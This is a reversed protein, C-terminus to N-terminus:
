WTAWAVLLAVVTAGAAMGLGYGQLVGQQSRGFSMGLARPAAGVLTVLGDIVMRDIIFFVSGLMRLPRVIVADNFEDIYYKNALTRVLGPFSRAVRDAAPRNFWHFYAALGIGALSIAGSLIMMFTHLALGAVMPHADHAEVLPTATSTEVMHEIFHPGYHEWVGLLIAGLALIVLPANMLFSMEHPEHHHEVTIAHPTGAEAPPSESPPEPQSHALTHTVTHQHHTPPTNLPTHPPTPGTTHVTTQSPPTVPPHADDQGHHEDGMEYALPGMFVRFWLRFTYFATLFATILGLVALAFYLWSGHEGMGKAMAAGLIVDKSYFGATFPFGALALCGILMLGATVPMKRWLGSMKRLDLQGALAHMVSGATLFLLAKFFAHTFLHFVGSAASVVGVGLFMYGLQSITSYAYIRKIDYQCLAITAAFIATLTGVIAVVPLAYQAYDFIPLLRAIMYVGATVMTAAHILASVPTPGEMADPLWVYLPIQASKGFAGLMLLFPIWIDLATPAAGTAAVDRVQGVVDALSLTGWHTLTLFIGLAFGLDGIRNVIFAKKAAAVASPKQYYYGILLYSCLGVGEWGLYLLVLNDALVLTTMAFIFICVYAFFRAYGRDGSMYGAAYIAVLTGVGTVVFLMVITLPDVLYSMGVDLSGVSMWTWLTVIHGTGHAAADSTALGAADQTVAGAAGGAQMAMYAMVSLVFAAFISGICIVAALKRLAPKLCCLGCLVAGGAPLWPIYQVLDISM